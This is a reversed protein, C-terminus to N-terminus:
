SNRARKSSGAQSGGAKRKKGAAKSGRQDKAPSKTPKSARQSSPTKEAVPHAPASPRSAPAAHQPGMQQVPQSRPVQQSRAPITSNINTIKSFDQIDTLKKDLNVIEEKRKKIHKHLSLMKLIEKRIEDYMEITQETPTLKLPDIDLEKLITSMQNEVKTSVPIPALMRQSRLYAGAFHEKKDGKKTDIDDQKRLLNGNKDEKLIKELNKEEKDLKKIKQDFKKIYDVIQKEREQQQKSRMYLKELYYKRKVEYDYSYPKKVIPHELEERIELLKKSCSYYRDKLEEVTRQYKKDYRDHVVIFKLDYLECLDWLYETEEKTWDSNLDKLHKEYEEDTFKVLKIKHNIKAFPYPEDVQKEKQWHSLKLGDKRAPNNFPAWVWKDVKRNLARKKGKLISSADATGALPPIGNTLSFVERNVGEPRKKDEKPKKKDADKQDRKKLELIQKVDESM